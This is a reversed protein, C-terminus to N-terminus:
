KAEKKAPGCESCACRAADPKTHLARTRAERIGCVVIGIVSLIFLCMLIMLVVSLIADVSRILFEKFKMDIRRTFRASGTM